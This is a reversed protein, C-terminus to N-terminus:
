SANLLTYLYTLPTANINSVNTISLDTLDIIQNQCLGNLTTNQITIGQNSINITDTISNISEVDFVEGVRYDDVIKKMENNHKNNHQAIKKILNEKNVKTRDKKYSQSLYYDPM